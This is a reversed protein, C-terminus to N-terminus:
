LENTNCDVLGGPECEDPVSNNNCDGIAEVETTNVVIAARGPYVAVFLDGKLDDNLDATQVAQPRREAARPEAGGAASRPTLPHRVLM